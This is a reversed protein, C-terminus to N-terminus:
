PLGLLKHIQLSLRWAPHAMVLAVARERAERGGEWEPQVSVMAGPHLSSLREALRTDLYEDAVLKLEDISGSWDAAVDYDPPKPSVVVWDPETEAGGSAFLSAPDVTGNTEVHVKRGCKHLERVLCALEASQLFPEGGTICVRPLGVASVIDAVTLERGCREDWTQPTDCWRVCALGLAEANCGALRVFSMPVGSWYGEGQLSDFIEIVRVLSM